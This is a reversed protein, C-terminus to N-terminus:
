LKMLFNKVGSEFLKKFTTEITEHKEVDFDENIPIAYEKDSNWSTGGITGAWTNHIEIKFGKQDLYSLIDEKSFTIENLNIKM